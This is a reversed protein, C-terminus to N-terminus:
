LSIAYMITGGHLEDIERGLLKMIEWGFYRSYPNRYSSVNETMNM